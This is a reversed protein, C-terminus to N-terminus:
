GNRFNRRVWSASRNYRMVAENTMKGIRAAVAEMEELKGNCHLAIDCGARLVKEARADPGGYRVLAEMSLDDSLLLGSFGMYNRIIGDIVKRSCSAPAREDVAKYIAHGVMGWVAESFARILLKQFPLFDYLELDEIDAAVVPLDKHTDMDARGLGPMHKIVPVVGGALLSQCVIAGLAAIMEPDSSFARNGIAEHTEPFRVDLVPTCDVNIGATNLEVAMRSFSKGTEERGRAFDRLFLDGFHQAPPYDSWHPPRLRQVRGGEQDILIPVDRGMCDRLSDTLVRLQQPNECNRVFLIFGLPNVRSFFAKEGDALVTGALGFIAALPAADSDVNSLM